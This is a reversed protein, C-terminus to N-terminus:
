CPKPVATAPEAPRAESSPAEAAPSQPVNSKQSDGPIIRVVDMPDDYSSVELIEGATVCRVQHVLGAPIDVIDGKAFPLEELWEGNSPKLFRIRFEGSLVLFTESKRIHLHGSSVAGANYVLIKGCYGPTNVVIREEGWGKKIVGVKRFSPKM